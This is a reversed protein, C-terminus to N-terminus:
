HPPPEPALLEDGSNSTFSMARYPAPWRDKSQPPVGLMSEIRLVLDDACAIRAEVRKALCADILNAVDTDCDQTPPSPTDLQRVQQLVESNFEGQPHRGTAMEHLIIGFAWIDARHDVELMSLQEPAMYPITGCVGTSRRSLSSIGNLELPGTLPQVMKALGFDLVKPVGNEGFMINAPKLDRHIIAKAHAYSLARAVSLMTNLAFQQRDQSEEFEPTELWQLLTKGKLYELVMYPRDQFADVRHIVVINEHTCRATARAEEIFRKKLDEEASLLVKIAVERDLEPERALFVEGMAGKGLSGIIEYRDITKPTQDEAM